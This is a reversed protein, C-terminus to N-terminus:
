RSEALDIPCEWTEDVSRGSYQCAESSVGFDDLMENVSGNELRDNVRIRQKVREFKGTARLEEFQRHYNFVIAPYKFRRGPRSSRPHIGVIYFAAGAISFSFEPSEPDSDVAPDWGHRDLRHLKQLQRWLRSEFAKESEVPTEEFAGIFSEFHLASPRACVVYRELDKYLARSAAEGAMTGYNNITIRDSRVAAKAMVCPSSNAQVYTRFEDRLTTM